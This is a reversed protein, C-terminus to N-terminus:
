EGTYPTLAKEAKELRDEFAKVEQGFRSTMEDITEDLKAPDIGKRRCEDEISALAKATAERKGQIRQIQAELSNRKKIAAEHRTTLEESM